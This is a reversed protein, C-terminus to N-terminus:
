DSQQSTDRNQLTAPELDYVSTYSLSSLWDLNGDKRAIYGDISTAIYISVKPRSFSTLISKENLSAALFKENMTTDKLQM